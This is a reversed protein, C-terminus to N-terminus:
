FSDAESVRTATGAGDCPLFWAPEGWDTSLVLAHVERASKRRFALLLVCAPALSRLREGDEEELEEIAASQPAEISVECTTGDALRCLLYQEGSPATRIEVGVEQTALSTGVASLTVEHSTAVLVSDM